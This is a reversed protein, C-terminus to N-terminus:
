IMGIVWCCTEEDYYTFTVEDDTCNPYTTPCIIPESIPVECFSSHTPNERINTVFRLTEFESENFTEPYVTYSISYIM